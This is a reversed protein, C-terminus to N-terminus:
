GRRPRARGLPQDLAALVDEVAVPALDLWPRLRLVVVQLAVGPLLVGGPVEPEGLPGVVAGLGAVREHVAVESADVAASEDGADVARRLPPVLLDLEHGVVQELTEVCSRPERSVERPMM